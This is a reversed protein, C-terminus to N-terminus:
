CYRVPWLCRNTKSVMAASFACLNINQTREITFPDYSWVYGVGFTWDHVNRDCDLRSRSITFSVVM